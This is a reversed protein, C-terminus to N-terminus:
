YLGQIMDQFTDEPKQLKQEFFKTHTTVKYKNSMLGAKDLNQYINYVLGSVSDSIDKSNVGSATHDVKNGVRKLDCFERKCLQNSAINLCNTNMLTKTYVYAEDTRDVSLYQNPIKDRTLAQFIQRSCFQDATFCGIENRENVDYIFELLHDLPTEQGNYRNIGVALPINILPQKVKSELGDYYRWKDFYGLALGCNDGTVGIDYRIFVIKDAPIEQLSRDFRYILKDTKDYFDFKVVDPGYQPLNFCKVANTTDQFFKDTASVSIGAADQLFTVLDFEAEARCEEPCDIVRDKDMDPTLIKGKSPDIIFPAHVGDGIFIKFWGKRGYYNMHSRVKWRNTHIALVKDGFPNNLIFDDAISDDSQSSTDIIIMGFYDMIREFRSHFRKTAQDLKEHAREYGIFNLESLNYFLVDSGINNNSRISDAVQEIIDLKGTEYMDKFYPSMTEWGNEGSMVEIFDTYALTNTKHFFSFKLHKGPVFGLTDYPNLLCAIRHKFYEAIFRVATSKGTGIAGTFVLIPYRTHIPTPFIKRLVDRWFPYLNKSVNGMYYEDDMFEDISKPMERYGLLRAAIMLKQDDTANLSKQLQLDRVIDQSENM